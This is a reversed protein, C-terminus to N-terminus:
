EGELEGKGKGKDEDRDAGLLGLRRAAEGEEGAAPLGTRESEASTNFSLPPSKSSTTPRTFRRRASVSVRKWAALARLYLLIVNKCYLVPNQSSKSEDQVTHASLQLQGFM